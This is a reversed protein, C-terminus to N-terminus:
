KKKEHATPRPFLIAEKLAKCMMADQDILRVGKLLNLTMFTEMSSVAQLQLKVHLHHQFISYSQLMMIMMM